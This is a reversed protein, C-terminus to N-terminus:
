GGAPPLAFLAYTGQAKAVLKGECLVNSDLVATTRGRHLVHTECVLRGGTVPRIFNLKIEITACSEGTQMRTYLARGMCTDVLSFVVGGHLVGHPNFLERRVPMETRSWGDGEEKHELALLAGFPNHANQEKAM